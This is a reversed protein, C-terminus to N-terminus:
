SYYFLSHCFPLSPPMYFHIRLMVKITTTRTKKLGPSTWYVSTPISQPGLTHSHSVRLYEMLLKTKSRTHNKNSKKKTLVKYDFGTWAFGGAIYNNKESATM